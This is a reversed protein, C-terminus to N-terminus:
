GKDVACQTFLSFAFLSFLMYVVPFPVVSAYMLLEYLM